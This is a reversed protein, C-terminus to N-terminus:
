LILNIVSFEDRCVVTELRILSTIKIKFEIMIVPFYLSGSTLGKSGTLVVSCSWMSGSLIVGEMLSDGDDFIPLCQWSL